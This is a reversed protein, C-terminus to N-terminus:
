VLTLFQLSSPQPCHSAEQLHLTEARIAVSDKDLKTKKYKSILLIESEIFLTMDKTDYINARHCITMKSEPDYKM